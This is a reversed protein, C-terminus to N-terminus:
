PQIDTTLLMRTEIDLHKFRKFELYSRVFKIRYSRSKCPDRKFVVAKRYLMMTQSVFDIAADLGDRDILFQIRNGEEPYNQLLLSM